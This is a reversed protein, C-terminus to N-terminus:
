FTWLWKFIHKKKNLDAITYDKMNQAEVFMIWGFKVSIIIFLHHVKPSLNSLSM